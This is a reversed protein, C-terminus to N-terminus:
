RNPIKEKTFNIMEILEPTKPIFTVQSDSDRIELYDEYERYSTYFDWPVEREAEVKAYTKVFTDDLTADFEWGETKKELDYHWRIYEFLTIGLWIIGLVAAHRPILDREEWVADAMAILLGVVVLRVAYYYAYTNFASFRLARRYAKVALQKEIKIHGSLKM